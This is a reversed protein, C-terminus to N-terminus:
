LATGKARFATSCSKPRPVVSIFELADSPAAVIGKVLINGGLGALAGAAMGLSAKGVAILTIGGRIDDCESKLRITRHRTLVFPDAIRLIRQIMDVLSRRNGSEVYPLRIDISISFM